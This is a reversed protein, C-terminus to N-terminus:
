KRKVRLITVSCPPMEYAIKKNIKVNSVTPKLDTSLHEGQGNTVDRAGSMVTQVANRSIKFNSIDAAVPMVSDTYNVFKLIVDGTKSDTVCSSTEAGKGTIVGSWYRDGHNSGFLRQVWYSTTPYVDTKDFFILDPKWQTNGIRALLPAYSALSVVDGNRELNTM